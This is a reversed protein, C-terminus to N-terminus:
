VISVCRTPWPKINKWRPDVTIYALGVRRYLPELATGIEVLILAIIVPVYKGDELTAAPFPDIPEWRAIQVYLLTGHNTGEDMPSCTEDMAACSCHEFAKLGLTDFMANDRECIRDFRYYYDKDADPYREDFFQSPVLHSCVELCQSEVKLLLRQSPSRTTTSSTSPIIVTYSSIGISRTLATLPGLLERSYVFNHQGYEPAASVDIQAWSWSPAIYQRSKTKVGGVPVSWVLGKHIDVSDQHGEEYWIGAVYDIEMMRSRIEDAIGEIAILRDTKYTLSRSIYYNVM